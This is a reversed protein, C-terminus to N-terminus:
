ISAPPMESDDLKGLTINSAAATTPFASLGTMLALAASILKYNRKRQM